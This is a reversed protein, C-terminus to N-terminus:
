HSAQFILAFFLPTVEEEPPRLGPAGIIPDAVAPLAV